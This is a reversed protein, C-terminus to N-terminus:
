LIAEIESLKIIGKPINDASFRLFRKKIFLIRKILPEKKTWIKIVDKEFEESGNFSIKNGSKLYITM